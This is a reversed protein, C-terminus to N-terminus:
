AIQGCLSDCFEAVRDVFFASSKLGEFKRSYLNICSYAGERLDLFAFKPLSRHLFLMSAAASKVLNVLYLILLDGM